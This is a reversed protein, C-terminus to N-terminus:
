GSEQDPDRSDLWRSGDGSGGPAAAAAPQDLTYTDPILGM